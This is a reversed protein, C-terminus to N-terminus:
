EIQWEQVGAGLCYERAEKLFKCLFDVQDLKVSITTCEKDPQFNGLMQTIAIRSESPFLGNRHARIKIM